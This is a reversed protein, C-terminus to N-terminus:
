AALCAQQAVVRVPHIDKGTVTCPRTVLCRELRKATILGNCRASVTGSDIRRGYIREYRDQIERGSMDKVGHRQATLVIDHIKDLEGKLHRLGIQNLAQASTDHNSVSADTTGTQLM